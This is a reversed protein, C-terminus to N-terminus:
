EEGRRDKGRGLIRTECEKVILFAGATVGGALYGFGAGLLPSFSLMCVLEALYLGRHMAPVVALALIEVPLLVAGVWISAARPYQGGYLLTQGLGVGTFFLAIIVFVEVPAGLVQLVAFLVAYMTTMLFLIGLGFRRPVGVAPADWEAGLRRKDEAPKESPVLEAMTVPQEALMDLVANRLRDHALGHRALLSSLAPDAGALIALLLHESGVFPHQLESAQQEALRLWGDLLCDLESRSFCRGVAGDAAEGWSPKATQSERILADLECTLQWMDVGLRELCRLLYTREWRLITWLLLRGTVPADLTLPMRAAVRAPVQEVIQILGMVCRRAFLDERHIM